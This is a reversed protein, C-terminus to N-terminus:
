NYIGNLIKIKIQNLKWEWKIMYNKRLIWYSNLSEMITKRVEIVVFCNSNM